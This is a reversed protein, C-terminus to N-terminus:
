SVNSIPSNQAFTPRFTTIMANDNSFKLHREQHVKTTEFLFEIPIEQADFRTMWSSFLSFNWWLKIVIIEETVALIVAIVRVAHFQLYQCPKCFHSSSSSQRHRGKLGHCSISIFHIGDREAHLSMRMTTLAWPQSRTTLLNLSDTLSRILIPLIWCLDAVNLFMVNKVYVPRSIM